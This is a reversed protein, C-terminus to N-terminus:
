GRKTNGEAKEAGLVQGALMVPVSLGLMIIGGVFLFNGLTGRNDIGEEIETWPDGRRAKQWRDHNEQTRLHERRDFHRV